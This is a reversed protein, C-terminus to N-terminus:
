WGQKLAVSPRAKHADGVASQDGARGEEEQRVEGRRAGSEFLLETKKRHALASPVM